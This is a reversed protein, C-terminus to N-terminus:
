PVAMAEATRKPWPRLPGPAARSSTRAPLVAKPAGSPVVNPPTVSSPNERALRVRTWAVSWPGLMVVALSVPNHCNGSGNDREGSPGALTTWSPSGAGPNPGPTVNPCIPVDLVIKVPSPRATNVTPNRPTLLKPAHSARAPEGGLRSSETPSVTAPAGGPAVTLAM